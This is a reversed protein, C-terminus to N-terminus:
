EAVRWTMPELVRVEEQQGVVWARAPAAQLTGPISSIVPLGLEFGVATVFKEVYLRGESGSWSDLAGGAVLADLAAADPRTGAPLGIEVAVPRESPASVSVLLSSSEGAELAPLEVRLDLGPQLRSIWPVFERRRLRFALGPVAPTAEIRVEHAVADIDAGLTIPVRPQRPDLIGEAALVGGVSVRVKVDAPVEGGFVDACAGLALLDAFTPSAPSPRALLWSALRARVAPDAEM